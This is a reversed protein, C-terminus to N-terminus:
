DLKHHSTWDALVAKGLSGYLTIHPLEDRLKIETTATFLGKAPTVSEVSGWSIKIAPHFARFLTSPHLFFGTDHVWGNMCNNYGVPWVGSRIDVSQWGFKQANVPILINGCYISLKKWGLVSLVKSVTLWMGIFFPVFAIIFLSPTVTDMDM